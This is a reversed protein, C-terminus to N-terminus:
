DSVADNDGVDDGVYDDDVDDVDGVDYIDDVNDDVDVADVADVVDVVDVNGDVNDNTEGSMTNTKKGTHDSRNTKKKSEDKSKKSTEKKSKRSTNEKTTSTSSKKSKSKIKPISVTDSNQTNDEPLVSSKSKSSSKTRSSTKSGTKSKSKSVNESNSKEDHIIPKNEINQIDTQATNQISNKTDSSENVQTTPNSNIIKTSLDAMNSKIELNDNNKSLTDDLSKIDEQIDSLKSKKKSTKKVEQQQSKDILQIFVDMKASINTMLFNLEENQIAAQSNKAEQKEIAQILFDIQSSLKNIASMNINDSM